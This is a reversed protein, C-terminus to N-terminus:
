QFKDESTDEYFYEDSDYSRPDEFAEDDEPFLGKKKKPKGSAVEDEDDLTFRKRRLIEQEERSYTKKEAPEPAEDPADKAAAKAKAAAPAKKPMKAATKHAPKKAAKASTKKGAM